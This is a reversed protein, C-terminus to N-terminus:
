EQELADLKLALVRGEGKLTRDCFRDAPLQRCIRPKRKPEPFPRDWLHVDFDETPDGEKKWASGNMWKRLGRERPVCQSEPHM